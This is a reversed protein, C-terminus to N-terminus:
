SRRSWVDIERGMWREVQAVDDEVLRALRERFEATVAPKQELTTRFQRGAVRRVLGPLASVARGTVPHRTIRRGRDSLRSRGVSAHRPTEDVSAFGSPAIGLFGAVDKLSGAPDALHEEFVMLHIQESPFLEFYPRLQMGYRSRNVFTPDRVLAIEQPDSTLRRVRRFAYNSLMREVPDRMVYVLKVDPNYAHIRDHTGGFEPLFTYMTSAELCLQGDSPAFLAHYDGLGARWDVQTNFYAPEKEDSLCIEPHSGLQHALSTTGSKQAGILMVDVRATM